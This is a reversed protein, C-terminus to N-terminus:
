KTVSYKQWTEGKSYPPSEGRGMIQGTMRGMGKCTGDNGGGGRGGERGENDDYSLM